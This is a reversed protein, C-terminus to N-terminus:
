SAANSMASLIATRQAATIPGANNDLLRRLAVGKHPFEAAAQMALNFKIYSSSRRIAPPHWKQGNQDFLDHRHNCTQWCLKTNDKYMEVFHENEGHAYLLNGYVRGLPVLHTESNDYHGGSFQENGSGETGYQPCGGYGWHNFEGPRYFAAKDCIFCLSAGCYCNIHNSNSERCVAIRCWPCLQYDVGRVQMPIGSGATAHHGQM